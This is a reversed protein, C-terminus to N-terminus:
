SRRWKPGPFIPSAGHGFGSGTMGVRPGRGPHPDRMWRPIEEPNPDDPEHGPGPPLLGPAEEEGGCPDKDPGQFPIAPPTDKGPSRDEENGPGEQPEPEVKAMEGVPGGPGLGLPVQFLLHVTGELPAESIEQIGSVPRNLLGQIEQLRNLSFVEL